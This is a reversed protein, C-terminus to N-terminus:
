ISISKGAIRAKGTRRGPTTGAHEQGLIQEYLQSYARVMPPLDFRELARERGSNGMKELLAPQAELLCMADAMGAVDGAEVLLGDRGHRVLEGVAGVSTALVARGASMAEMVSLPNGEWRSSLVFVDAAGLADAIDARQGLFTVQAAMGLREALAATADRLAGEGALLLRAGPNRGPGKAFAELLTKHDKQPWFRAVSLYVFENAAVGNRARWAARSVAPAGYQRVPIANPIVAAEPFGYVRRFSASVEEAITVARVGRRFAFRQLRVGARDVERDAVNHITHVMGRVRMAAAVPYTYRLVYNHTHLIDPQFERLVRMIRPYMRLDLGRRKGLHYLRVGADRLSDDLGGPPEAYLSIVGTQFRARDLSRLLSAVMNEVGYPMLDPVVHLVRMM